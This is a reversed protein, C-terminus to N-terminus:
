VFDGQDHGVELGALNNKGALGIGGKGHGVDSLFKGIKQIVGDQGLLFFVAIRRSFPGAGEEIGHPAADRTIKMPGTPSMEPEQEGSETEEEGFAM